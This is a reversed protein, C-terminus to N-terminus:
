SLICISLRLVLTSVSTTYMSMLCEENTLSLPLGKCRAWIIKNKTAQRIYTTTLSGIGGIITNDEISDILDYNNLRGV